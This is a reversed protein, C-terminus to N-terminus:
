GVNLGAQAWVDSTNDYSFAFVDRAGVATSLTPTTSGAFKYKSGWSGTYSGSGGQILHIVITQGSRGNSPNAITANSALVARFVNGDDCNPTMTGGTGLSVITSGTGKAFTQAADLRAYAAAAVGNLAPPSLVNFSNVFFTSCSVSIDTISNGSRHIDFFSRVTTGLDDTTQLRLLGGSAVFRWGRQDTGGDTEDFVIGPATSSLKLPADDENVTNTFVNRASLDAVNAAAVTGINAAVSASNAYRANIANNATASGDRLTNLQAQASASLDNVYSIAQHSASVAGAVMPWTRKTAAKILRLHDDATSRQDTGDPWATNLADIYTSTELAM